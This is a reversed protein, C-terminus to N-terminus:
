SQGRATSCPLVGHGGTCFFVQLSERSNIHEKRGHRDQNNRLRTRFDRLSKHIVRYIFRLSTGCLSCIRKGNPLGCPLPQILFYISVIMCFVNCASRRFVSPLCESSRTTSPPIFNFYINTLYSSFINLSNFHNLIPQQFVIFIRGIGDLKLELSQPDAVFSLKKKKKKKKKKNKNKKQRIVLM